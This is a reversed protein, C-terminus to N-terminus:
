EEVIQAPYEAGRAPPRSRAGPALANRGDTADQEAFEQTKAPHRRRALSCRHLHLIGLRKGGREILAFAHQNQGSV